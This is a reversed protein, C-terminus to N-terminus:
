ATMVPRSRGGTFNPMRGTEWSSSASQTSLTRMTPSATAATAATSSSVASRAHSSISTVYSGSRESIDISSASAWGSTRMWSYPSPGFTWLATDSCNPSTSAANASASRTRSSTNKKSPLVCRGM